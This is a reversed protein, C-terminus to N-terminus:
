GPDTANTSSITYTVSDLMTADANDIRFTTDDTMTIYTDTQDVAAWTGDGYDVIILAGLYGFYEAIEEITPLRPPTSPTGYLMDELQEVLTSALKTTDISIHVTPRFGVLKVPTGSLAWSFEIPQVSSDNSSDFGYSDPIAVVNYLIHIKYGYELGALDNGVHTRYSLNFSKPPQDYVGLGLLDTAIGNIKEFESPYTFAKLKGAYDGPIVVELYKVGDLYFEKLESNPDDEVSTLGNWVAVTGDQLYLVGRDIGTQFIREGPKDWVLTAV